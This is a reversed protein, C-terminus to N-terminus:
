ARAHRSLVVLPRLSFKCCHNTRRYYSLCCRIHLRISRQLFKPRIDVGPVVQSRGVSALQHKGARIDEDTKLFAEKMAKEYEGNETILAEDVM